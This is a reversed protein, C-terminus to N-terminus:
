QKAPEKKMSDGAQKMADGAQKMADGTQEKAAEGAKNMADGAKNMADGAEKVAEGAQEKAAEGAQEASNPNSQTNTQSGGSCAVVSLSLGAVVCLIKWNMIKTRPQSKTSEALRVIANAKPLKTNEYM